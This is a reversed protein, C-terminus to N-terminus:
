RQTPWRRTVRHMVRALIQGTSMCYRDGGYTRLTAHRTLRLPRAHVYSRRRVKLVDVHGEAAAWVAATGGDNADVSNVDAGAALLRRCVDGHGRQAALM